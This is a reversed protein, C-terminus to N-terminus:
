QVNGSFVLWEKMASAAACNEGLRTNVAMGSELTLEATGVLESGMRGVDVKAMSRVSAGEDKALEERCCRLM